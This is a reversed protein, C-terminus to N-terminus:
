LNNLHTYKFGRSEKLGYGLARDMFIHTFWIIDIEEILTIHNSTLLLIIVIVTPLIFSHALNYTISGVKNGFVYGAAFIDPVLIFILFLILNFKLVVFYLVIFLLLAVGNESQIIKKNVSM